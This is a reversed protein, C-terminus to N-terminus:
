VSEMPLCIYSTTSKRSAYGDVTVQGLYKQLATGSTPTTVKLTFSDPLLTTTAALPAAVVSHVAALAAVLVATMTYKM